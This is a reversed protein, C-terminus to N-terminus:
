NYKLLLENIKKEIKTIEKLLEVMNSNNVSKLNNRLENLKIKLVQEEFRVICEKAMELTPTFKEINISLDILKNRIDNDTIQNILLTIPIDNESILHIFLQNFIEKHVVSKFWEPKMNEYIFKRITTDKNLCLRILDDELMNKSTEELIVDNSKQKSKFRNKRDIIKNLTLFINEESLNTEEALEKGSLERFIPEKITVIEELSENIFDNISNKNEKKYFNYHFGITNKAKKFAELFIDVGKTEILDDPDM